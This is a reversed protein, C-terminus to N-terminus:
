QTKVYKKVIQNVIEDIVDYNFEFSLAADPNTPDWLKDCDAIEDICAIQETDSLQKFAELENPELAKADYVRMEIEEKIFTIYANPQNFEINHEKLLAMAKEFDQTNNMELLRM